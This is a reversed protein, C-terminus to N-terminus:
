VAANTLRTKRRKEMANLFFRSTIFMKLSYFVSAIIGISTFNIEYFYNIFKFLILQGVGYQVIIEEFLKGGNIYDLAHSAIFGWHHFDSHYISFFNSSAIILLSITALFFIDLFYKKIFKM